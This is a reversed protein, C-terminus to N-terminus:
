AEQPGYVEEPTVPNDDWAIYLAWCVALLLYMTATYWAPHPTKLTVFAALASLLLLPRM